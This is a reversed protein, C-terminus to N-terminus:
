SLLKSRFDQALAKERDRDDQCEKWDVKGESQILECAVARGFNLSIRPADKGIPVYVYRDSSRGKATNDGPMEFYIYAQSSDDNLHDVVEEHSKVRKLTQGPLHKKMSKEIAARSDQCFREEVPLVQLMMHNRAPDIFPTWREYLFLECGHRRYLKRINEIQSRLTGM